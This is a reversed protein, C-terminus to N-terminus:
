IFIRRVAAKKALPAEASMNSTRQNRCAPSISPFLTQDVLRTVAAKM